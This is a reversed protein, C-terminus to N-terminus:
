DDKTEFNRSVERGALCKGYHFIIVFLANSVQKTLKQELDEIPVNKIQDLRQNTQQLNETIKDLM